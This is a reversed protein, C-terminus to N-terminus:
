IVMPFELEYDRGCMYSSPERSLSRTLSFSYMLIVFYHIM